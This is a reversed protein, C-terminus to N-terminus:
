SHLLTNVSRERPRLGRYLPCHVKARKPTSIRWRSSVPFSTTMRLLTLTLCRIGYEQREFSEHIITGRVAAASFRPPYGIRPWVDEYQSRRLSARRPCQEADRAISFSMWEPFHAWQKPPKAILLSHREAMM